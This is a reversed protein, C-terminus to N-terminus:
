RQRRQRDDGPRAQGARDPARAPSVDQRAAPPLKVVIPIQRQAPQAQGPEPRLRRGHRHAAHRRDGGFDRRPRRRAFDPRVVLEPRVLSATTTIAGIGPMTRLEREVIRAHEALLAGNESALVLVYKENSGGLGVKVQVGPLAGPGRAVPARSGAEQCRRTRRAADHQHDADGQAGRRRRAAFPDSGTAGGGIATYVMRVHPNKEVIHRAQKPPTRANGQLHQRTAPCAYVQTQSLDDPPLFGKDAPPCSPSPASSSSPPPALTTAAPAEPV